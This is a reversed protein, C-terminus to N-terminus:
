KTKWGLLSPKGKIPWLTTLIHDNMSLTFLPNLKDALRPQFFLLQGWFVNNLLKNSTSPALVKKACVLCILKLIPTPSFEEWDNLCTPMKLVTAAILTVSLCVKKVQYYKARRYGTFFTSCILLPLLRYSRM